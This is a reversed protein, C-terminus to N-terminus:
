RITAGAASPRLGPDTPPTPTRAARNPRALRTPPRPLPVLAAGPHRPLGRRRQPAMDTVRLAHTLDGLVDAVPAPRIPMPM